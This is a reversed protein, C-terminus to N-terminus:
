TTIYGMKKWDEYGKTEFMGWTTRWQWPTNRTGQGFGSDTEWKNNVWKKIWESDEWGNEAIIRAIANVVLNDTGPYLDLHIGGMKKIFAVGATERPNLIIVKQGGEIAPKIHQTFLISKTEYPDTGCIMLVEASAWDKYSAGFNDFGADRFGPTSTVDSPTDHWTFAATNVHRRAYKTIAYTNEIYQYSFTKVSYANAGHKAIVYKGVEAAVELAMDWSVPMLTDYIRLLPSKLRDKTPTAPNYCKQAITGGRVSSDGNLNVSKIQKDPLIVVHHRRGKHMVINHQNPAVWEQLVSVPFDKGFANQSAKPRGEQGMPWRYVKYGCAVICYDCATTLVEADRPPLPVKDTPTYYPTSM